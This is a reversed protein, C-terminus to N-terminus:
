AASRLRKAVDAVRRGLVQCLELEEDTVPLDSKTGALHSAGYPTGGSRTKLLTTETYPIGVMLMGHHMLPLMMSILTTEQGGHM